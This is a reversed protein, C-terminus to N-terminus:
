VFLFLQYTDVLSALTLCLKLRWNRDLSLLIVKSVLSTMLDQSRTCALQFSSFLMILYMSLQYEYYVSNISSWSQKVIMICVAVRHVGASAGLVTIQNHFLLSIVAQQLCVTLNLLIYILNILWTSSITKKKPEAAYSSTNRTKGIHLKKHLWHVCQFLFWTDLQRIESM